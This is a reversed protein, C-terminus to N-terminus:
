LILVSKGQSFGLPFFGVLFSEEIYIIFFIFSLVESRDKEEKCILSERERASCFHTYTNSKKDNLYHSILINDSLIVHVAIIVLSM